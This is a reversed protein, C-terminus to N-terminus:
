GHWHGGCRGYSYSRSIIADSRANSPADGGAADDAAADNAVVNKAAIGTAVGAVAAAASAVLGESM